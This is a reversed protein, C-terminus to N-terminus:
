LFDKLLNQASGPKMPKQQSADPAWASLFVMEVTVPIKQDNEGYREFYIEETRSFLQRPSFVPSNKLASTAGMARLDMIMKRLSPYRLTYIETDAVPLSFGARQLLDGFQRVEGFPEVRLAASGTIESEAAILCDRLEKLTAAGPLCALFLGDPRLIKRIQTLMGPLDNSRHLAFVSTILSLSEPKFPLHEFNAVLTQPTNSQSSNESVLLTVEGVNSAEKLIDGMVGFPTFLDAALEFERKTVALRDAITESALKVLFDADGQAINEARRQLARIRNPDFLQQPSTKEMLSYYAQIM